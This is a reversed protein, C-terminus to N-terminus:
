KKIAWMQVTGNMVEQDSYGRQNNTHRPGAPDAVLFRGDSTLGRLVLIHGGGHTFTGRTNSIIVMGGSQLTERAKALNTSIPTSTLGFKPPVNEISSWYIGDQSFTCHDRTVEPTISKDGTLNAIVIALSTPGCGCEAFSSFECGGKGIKKGAWDGQGQYFMTFNGLDIGAGGGSLPNNSQCEEYNYTSGLKTQDISEGALQYIESAWQKISQLYRATDNESPPAYRMMTEDITKLDGYQAKIYAYMDDKRPSRDFLSDELSDWKYWLRASAIHPQSRTATRGYANHGERLAKGARQDTGLSTEARAIVIPLIPNIGSRQGGMIAYKGLGVFPSNPSVKKVWEDIAQAFKDPDKIEMLDKSFGSSSGQGSASSSSLANCGGGRFTDNKDLFIIHNRTYFQENKHSALASLNFMVLSITLILGGCILVLALKHQYKKMIM